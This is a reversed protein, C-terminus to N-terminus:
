SGATTCSVWKAFLARCPLFSDFTDTILIEETRLCLKSDRSTNLDIYPLPAVTVCPLKAM